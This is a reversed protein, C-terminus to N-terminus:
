ATIKAGSELLAKKSRELHMAILQGAFDSHKERIAWLIQQHEHLTREVIESDANLQHTYENTIDRLMDYYVLLLRSHSIRMIMDHFKRDYQSYEAYNYCKAAAEMSFVLETLKKLDEETRLLASKRYASSELPIRVEYIDNISDKDISMMSFLPRIFRAPEVETVYTGDGQIINLVGMVELKILSERLCVRSVGFEDVLKQESPLKDGVKWRGEKILQLFQEVIADSKYKKKKEATM